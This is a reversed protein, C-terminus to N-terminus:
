GLASDAARKATQASPDSPESNRFASADIVNSASPGLADGARMRTGPFERPKEAVYSGHPLMALEAPCLDDILELRQADPRPAHEEDV